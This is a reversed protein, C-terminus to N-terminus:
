IESREKILRLIEEESMEKDEEKKYGRNFWTRLKQPMLWAIISGVLFIITFIGTLILNITTFVHVPNDISGLAYALFNFTNKAGIMELSFAAIGAILYRKKIWPEIRQNKFL